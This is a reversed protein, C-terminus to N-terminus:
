GGGGVPPVAPPAPNPAPVATTTVTSPPPGVTIDLIAQQSAALVLTASGLAGATASRV